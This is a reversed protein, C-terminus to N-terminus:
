KGQMVMDYYRGKSAFLEERPGGELLKGHELVFIFDANKVTNLRHAIVISTRGKMLRDLAEQIAMETVTDISSTAEDLLLIAPDAVLARAISLLQKQGQSIDGGDETLVHDYGGELKEIFQHANAQKAAQEIAADSADLRGYRINDRITGEFLFPDQLVFAMQARLDTRSITEIARGDITLEGDDVDYFRAILQMITTKGAGTAGVLAATKGAPIDFSINSLTPKETAVDYRFTVDDFKIHGALREKLPKAHPEKEVEEDLIEFVREAGAIASLVNNFQNALDNLPRTFQRAYETFIVITGVSLHGNVALIGGAGAVLAFSANNLFNMVKPIGGSYVNAWYGVHRLEDAKGTFDEIMREEQSYAKVILQGSISEEVMGNLTGLRQQQGKFLPSTRRTIWRTAIFMVPIIIMTILTLLPSMTLMVVVTGTLVLVSSFVQIFTSNLTSSVNDMDNTMRSMLEGHQKRDFFSIPLKQFQNFLETRMRYVTQQAIGIMWYNQLFLTISLVIYSIAIVAIITAMGSLERAIIHADILRGILFPGLLQLGSSLVVMLLVILLLARQEDVYHWIRKLTAGMNSAKDRQKKKKQLMDKTLIPEYGFPKFM